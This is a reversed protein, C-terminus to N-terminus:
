KYKPSSVEGIPLTITNSDFVSIPDKIKSFANIIQPSSGFM